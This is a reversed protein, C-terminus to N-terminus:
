TARKGYKAARAATLTRAADEAMEFAEEISEAETILGPDFPCTVLYGGEEAPDLHLVRKRNSVIFTTPKM